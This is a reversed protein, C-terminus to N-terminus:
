GIIFGKEEMFAVTEPDTLCYDIFAAVEGEPEGMTLMNFSRYYGYEGSLVTQVTPEVGNIALVKIGEAQAANGLSIFTVGAPDNQIEKIPVYRNSSLAFDVYMFLTEDIEILEGNSDRGLFLNQFGERIGSVSDNRYLHIDVGEGGIDRWDTLEGMFVAKVQEATLSDVPNESNVIIAVADMCLRAATMEPYQAREEEKLERSSLGIDVMGDGCSLIGAGSGTANFSFHVYPKRQMYMEALAEVVPGVSTSGAVSIEVPEPQPTQTPAPTSSPIVSVSAEPSESLTPSQERQQACGLCLLLMMVVLTSMIRQISSQM